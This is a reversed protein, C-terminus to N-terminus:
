EHENPKVADQLNGVGDTRVQPASAGAAKFFGRWFAEIGRRRPESARKLDASHLFGLYVKTDVFANRLRAGEALGLSEAKKEDEFRSDTLFRFREDDQIFDTLVILVKREKPDAHAMEEGAIRVAGILDSRRFGGTETEVRMREIQEKVGRAFQAKDEDHVKRKDLLTAQVVTGENLADGSVPIVTLRTNRELTAAMNEVEDFARKRAGPEISRTLDIVCAIRTPRKPKCATFFVIFLLLSAITVSKLM